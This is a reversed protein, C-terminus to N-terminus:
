LKVLNLYYGDADTSNTAIQGAEEFKAGRMYQRLAVEVNLRKELPMKQLWGAGSGEAWRFRAAFHKLADKHPMQDIFTQSASDFMYWAGRFRASLREFLTQVDNEPFYIVSAESILVVSYGDPVQVHDMWLGDFASHPLFAKRPHDSFFSRWLSHVEPTDLDYWRLLGNDTRSFRTNLGCGLEVVVSRPQTSLIEKLWHDIMATRLTTRAMSLRSEENDLIGFDYDLRSVIDSATSDRLLPDKRASELARGYLPILLTEGYPGLKPRIKEGPSSLKM